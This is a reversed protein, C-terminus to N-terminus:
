ILEMAPVFKAAKVDLTATSSCGANRNRLAIFIDAFEASTKNMLDLAEEVLQEDEVKIDESELLDSIARMVDQKQAKIRSQLFWAFEMISVCNIYGPGIHPLTELLADIKDNQEPDDRLVLRLLINTDLGIM